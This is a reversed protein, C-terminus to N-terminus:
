SDERLEDIRSRIRAVVRCKATYVSGIPIGLQAAAEEAGCGQVATLEFARWTVDRVEGKVKAAAWDFVSREYELDFEARGDGRTDPLESLLEQVGTDGSTHGRRARDSISDVSINRAVRLLWARFSGKASDHDWTSVRQHVASLVEQAVDRADAEQLGKSRCLRLIAQEYVDLFEAWADDSRKALEILLSQRTQPIESM